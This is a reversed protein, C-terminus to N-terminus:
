IISCDAKLEQSVFLIKKVRVVRSNLWYLLKSRLPLHLERSHFVWIVPTGSIAGAMSAINIPAFLAGIIMGVNNKKSMRALVIAMTLYDKKELIILSVSNQINARQPGDSFAIITVNHYKSLLNADIIIQKEAGGYNLSSIVVYINM